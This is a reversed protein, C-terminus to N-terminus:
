LTNRGLGQKTFVHADLDIEGGFISAAALPVDGTLDRLEGIRAAIAIKIGIDGHESGPQPVGGAAAVELDELEHLHGVDDLIHQGFVAKGNFVLQRPGIPLPGIHDLM